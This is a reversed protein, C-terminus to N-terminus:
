QSPKKRIWMILYLVVAVVGLSGIAIIIGYQSLLDNPWYKALERGADRWSDAIGLLANSINDLTSEYPAFAEDIDGSSNYAEAIAKFTSAVYGTAATINLPNILTSNDALTEFFPLAREGAIVFNTLNTETMIKPLSKLATRYSLYQLTIQAELGIGIFMIASAKFQIENAIGNFVNLYSKLGSATIDSSLARFGAQGFQGIYANTSSPSYTTGVGLLKDRVFKGLQNEPNTHSVGGPLFTNAIFYRPSWANLLDYYSITSYNGRGDEPYGYNEGFSGVGPDMITASQFTDNYGVLLIGHGGGSIGEERLIDYDSAPLYRPDVSVLLPYGSDITKRMLGFAADQGNLVGVSIGENEWVQLNQELNPISASVYLTYNIGYYKSIFDTPEVQSYLAGPFMLITDNIHFYAFSFGISSIAFVDYLNVDVGAYQMAMAVTAWACFGNIEQWIYPKSPLITDGSISYNSDLKPFDSSTQVISPTIMLLAM